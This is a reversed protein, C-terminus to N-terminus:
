TGGWEKALEKGATDTIVKASPRPSCSPKHSAPPTTSLRTDVAITKAMAVNACARKIRKALRKAGGGCITQGLSLNKADHGQQEPGQDQDDGQFVNQKKQARIVM